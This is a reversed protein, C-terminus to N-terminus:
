RCFGSCRCLVFLILHYQVPLVEGKISFSAVQVLLRVFTVKGTSVGIHPAEAIPALVTPRGRASKKATTTGLKAEDAKNSETEALRSDQKVARRRSRRTSSVEATGGTDKNDTTSGSRLSVMTRRKCSACDQNNVIVIFEGESINCFEHHRLKDRLCQKRYM